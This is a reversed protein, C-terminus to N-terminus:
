DGEDSSGADEAADQATGVFIRGSSAEEYVAAVAALLTDGVDDLGLYPDVAEPLMARLTAAATPARRAMVTTHFSMGPRRREAWIAVICADEGPVQVRLVRGGSGITTRLLAHGRSEIQRACDTLSALRGRYEATVEPFFEEFAAAGQVIPASAQGAGPTAKEARDAPASERSRSEIRQPIVVRTSNVAYSAVTVLDVIVQENTVHELYGVLRVLDDPAEDLVLV